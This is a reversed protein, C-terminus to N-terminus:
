IGAAVVVYGEPGRVWLERQKSNPNLLPGDLVVTTTPEIRSVVAEFGDVAFWLLVGNGRSPDTQDGLHPHEHADWRHLQAVVESGSLLMEYEAGGHGSQLGLVACFWQSAAEVDSVVIM